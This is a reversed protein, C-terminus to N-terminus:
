AQLIIVTILPSHYILARQLHLLKLNICPNAMLMPGTLLTILLFVYHSVVALKALIACMVELKEELVSGGAIATRGVCGKAFM